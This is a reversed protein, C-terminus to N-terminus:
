NGWDNKIHYQPGTEPIKFVMVDITGDSAPICGANDYTVSITTPSGLANYNTWDVTISNTGAGASITGYTGDVTWVYNNMGAETSYVLSEGVCTTDTGTITPAPIAAVDITIPYVASECGAVSNEITLNANYTGLAAAGPVTIAIPSGGLAVDVVDVFGEAEASADFDISYSDPSGTTATYVLDTSTGGQCVQIAPDDLTITPIPNVTIALDRSPSDGCGNTIYVSLTGSTSAANFDINVSNGSGNITEGSGSYSWTYSLASPDNPVTYVVGTQGQCVDADYATFPDPQVPLLPFAIVVDDTSICGGNTITWRLTYTSGNTGNFTTTPDTVDVFSGGTGSVVSWQGTGVGPTNGDMLASTAGCLSQDSGADATTPVTYTTIITPDVVGTTPSGPENYTFSILEYTTGIADTPLIYPLSSITVSETSGGKEYSLVYDLDSADVGTFSVPIGENGCVAGAPNLRARPKTVNVCATTFDSSGAAPILIRSSTIVTGNNNDSGSAISSTIEEWQTAGTNYNAVRMDSTGNQTMLPTLDSAPDWDIGVYAESGTPASVTWYEKSNVYTLPAAKSTYTVNPTSFEVTWDVTGTQTSSLEIKNGLDTGKGVPFVFNDGQNITKTLPGDVYSSSSGGAPMVCNMDTNTITLTNTSSTVINGDTLLLNGSVEIDGSSNITLGASNNIELNNFANIGTFDGLAGGITQAASGEFSVTANAGTGSVFAGTNYREMTGQIILKSNNVTNDLTPGDILLQNCITLDKNPLTRTGTGTFHLNPVASYLDAIITYNTSGGYELTANNACDLFDTFRGAPFTGSELYLTGTGSVTGLNHGFTTSEVELKGNITTRYATAFDVDTTVVDDSDIIVIFGNPGGSLAYTDGGTQDWNSPDSWDGDNISTFEPVEDPLAPDVGATYEGDLSSVASYNFTITNSAEDVDDISKIWSTGPLLLAAAIYDAETNSGTVLVDEELYNLIVSGNFGTIGDSEIEWYYDLVNNNDLVGPHNDNINNIRIYGVNGIDSYTLEAPTYKGSTGIPFLFTQDAGSYISFYKRLGVNSFVGDSTIMKTNDFPAGLIDSGTQLTFLQDNIDLIGRTLILNKQLTIDDEVSVGLNNDIELQGWTGTGYIFQQNKTGNLVLGANNDTYTANNTIDGQVFVSNVDCELTGRSLILDNKVNADSNLTLRTLSNVTLDYFDIASAGTITQTGGDFTTLNNRHTYVGSNDFNGRITIPIDFNVNADLESTATVLTLDGDVELPSILLEVSANDGGSGNITLNGIPVNADLIYDQNGTGNPDFIIEGGTVTSNEPRLYLDGFTGDGSGRVITLTGDSMNFESGANLIELKANETLVNRGNITVDGGSQNYKLIGASTAPNRRIQGNVTLSGGQIDIESNGGGSYEIDNNNNPAGTEGIYIDGDIITLKGNLYVDNNDVNDDALYVTNGPTNIYLGGSSPITFQSNQTITLDDDHLYKFTGNVLRLWDDVPTNLTGQVDVVLSDSQDTGKDIIVQDLSTYSNPNTTSTIYETEDGFFTLPIDEFNAGRNYDQGYFGGAPANANNIISGGIAFSQNNANNWARIGTEEAFILDGYVIFDMALNDNDFYTLSGGQMDFNGNITITKAIPINPATPYNSDWTPCYWSGANEGKTTLNGYIIVDTNGFIINSGGLPSIILNGYENINNPLWFTRGSQPNITYLEITGMNQNFDSFDGAPFEYTAPNDFNNARTTIRIKGNGNEHSVVTGFDCGPNNQIDLVSGAEIKISACAVDAENLRYFNNNPNNNNTPFPPEVSLYVSDQGGIIVVDGQSPVNSPEDDITHGSLSWTATNSWVGTQRSYYTEPSVFATVVGGTYEGDLFDASVSPTTWEGFENNTDDFDAKEGNYWTTALPSYVAPVYNGDTGKVDNESYTFSHTVKGAFGTIGDSKVRWYYSLNNGGTSLVPHEYGVPTVTVTGYSSLAASFGISAPTYEAAAHETSAAGIPFTFNTSSATYVRSVGGDGSNGACQVFRNTGANAVTADEGFTLGYTSIDFLKDQSFTLTGNIRTNAALSVPATLADTNNLELNGFVGNGGILTPDDDSIKIRGAGSHVGSNYIFSSTTTGSNVLELIKGGDVLNANLISLTDQITIDSQTGALTLTTGAPKDVKLKKLALATATNVEFNQAGSGNFITWNEGTIYANGSEITFDGGVSVNYGRANFDGDLINLDNLVSLDGSVGAANYLDVSPNGTGENDMVFNYFPAASRIIFANGATGQPKINITGGSVNINKEESFIDIAYNNGGTVDYINITGGSMSFVNESNNINLTAQGGSLDGADTTGSFTANKIDAPTSPNQTLSLRGRLNLTGGTQYFAALGVAGSSRMQRADVTGGNIVFEGSVEAWTIFGASRRSSLYGDDVQLKGYVSFAQYGGISVGHISGSGESLGYAANVEAYDNATTLVIVESGNLLLSGNSPLFYDGNPTGAGGGETLSPIVVLGTLELTGTRIWVAKRISPNPGGNEGPQNNRGFLRFNSYASSYVTLKFTQDIGKDLVLNYLDTTGNATLTNNTAGMFYVTAMGNNPFANYVPYSQNTFRVSGNNTFDGYVVIRHSNLDYYDIFPAVSTEGSIDGSVTNGTGTTIFAGNDVLVDGQITLKRRAATNDNIRYTGQKVHLDGNLTIDSLQTAVIGIPTNIRLHYYTAQAAPLTFDAANNYETTGGDTNVFDNTIVTPYNESALKFTGAGRLAGLGASFQYTSQNVVGGERITMDLNTSDVDAVLNVTRGNLIVVKDGSNPIDTANQTTGGPDHTWTSAQDWDGTQYSYYIDFDLSVDVGYRDGLYNNIEVEDAEILADDYYILEAIEGNFEQGGGLSSGNQDITTGGARGITIDAGHTNLTVPPTASTTQNSFPVNNLLASLNGNNWNFSLVYAENADIPTFSTIRETGGDNYITVYINNNNIFVGLGNTAGGEEYIYQTTTVDAETNFAVFMTRETGVYAGGTNIRDDNAITMEDNGDFLLAEQSNMDASTILQPGITSNADNGNGSQDAWNTVTGSAEIVGLDGRLWYVLDTTNGIPTELGTVQVDDILWWYDWSGQWKFKIKVNSARAAYNSIDFNSVVPNAGNTEDLLSSWNYIVDETVFNNSSISITVDANGYSRALHEVSFKVIDMNTCDFSPSILEADEDIGLTGHADSDLIMYGNAATTSNLQGGYNGGVDTWEWGPFGGPGDIVTNTWGLPLSGNFDEQFIVTQASISFSNVGILFLLLIIKGLLFRYKKMFIIAM